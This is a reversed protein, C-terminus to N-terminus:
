DNRLAEDGAPEILGGKVLGRVLRSQRPEAAHLRAHGGLAGLGSRGGSIAKLAQSDLEADEELDRIVLSGM